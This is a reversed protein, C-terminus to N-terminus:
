KKFNVVSFMHKLDWVNPQWQLIYISCMYDRRALLKSTLLLEGQACPELTLLRHAVQPLNLSPDPSSNQSSSHLQVRVLFFSPLPLTSPKQINMWGNRNKM